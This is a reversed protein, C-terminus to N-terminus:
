PLNAAVWADVQERLARGRVGAATASDAAQRAATRAESGRGAGELAKAKGFYERALAYPESSSAKFIAISREFLSSALDYEGTGLRCWGQVSVLAAGDPTQTRGHQEAIALGRELLVFAEPCKGQSQLTDAYNALIIVLQPHEEGFVVQSIQLASKFRRQALELDGTQVAVQALNQDVDAISPQHEGGNAVWIARARLWLTSAKLPEASMFAISALNHLSSAVTPHESGYSAERIALTKAFHTSAVDLDGSEQALIGLGEHSMSVWPHADGLSRHLIELARNHDERAEDRRGVSRYVGARNNLIVALNPHGAGFHAETYTLAEQYAALAEDTRALDGLLVALVNYTASLSRSRDDSAALDLAVATRLHEESLEHQQTMYLIGGMAREYYAELAPDTARRVASAAGALIGLARKADGLHSGVTDALALMAEAEVDNAGTEAATAIAEKLASESDAPRGARALMRGTHLLLEALVADQGLADVQPRLAELAAVAEASKGLADLLVAADISERVPAALALAEAAGQHASDHLREPACQALVTRSAAAATAKAVVQPDRTDILASVLRGVDARSRELCRMRQDLLAGSQEGRHATAECADRYEGEWATAWGNLRGGVAKDAESALAAGTSRLGASLKARLDENWVEARRDAGTDCGPRDDNRLGWTVGAGLLGIGFVAGVGAAIRRSAAKPDYRLRALLAQMSPWRAEPDPLLGRRLAREVAGPVSGAVATRSPQPVTGDLTAYVLEALTPRHFPRQGYLAEWLSVCFAFQDARHDVEGGKHQEAAMYAPSGMISGTATLTVDASASLRPADASATPAAESAAAGAIGVLGFDTVAVRGDHSVLVNDPKFDRHVLGAAHAAALGRGAAAFVDLVEALSRSREGSWARLTRGDIFEMAIFLQDSQFGVQHVAVVNPHAIKAMSQAERLMRQQAAETNSSESKPRVLKIAVARDLDPDHAALVVGM